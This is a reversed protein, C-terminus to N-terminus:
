WTRGPNQMPLDLLFMSSVELRAFCLSVIAVSCRLWSLRITYHLTRDDLLAGKASLILSHYFEPSTNYQWRTRLRSKWGLVPAFWPSCIACPGIDHYSRRVLTDGGPREAEWHRSFYLLTKACPGRVLLSTESSFAVSAYLVKVIEGTLLSSGYAIKHLSHIFGLKLCM